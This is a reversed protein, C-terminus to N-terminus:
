GIVDTTFTGDTINIQGEGYKDKLNDILATEQQRLELFKNFLETKRQSLINKQSEMFELEICVSGFSQNNDKFQEQLSKIADLHEKDLKQTM